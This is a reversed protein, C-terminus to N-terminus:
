EEQSLMKGIHPVRRLGSMIAEGYRQVLALREKVIQPKDIRKSHGSSNLAAVVRGQGDLLPIALSIVGYALEDEVVAYGDERAQLIARTLKAPDTTTVDTLAPLDGKMYQEIFSDSRGAMLVRGSATAFAPFRSGVHAELRMLMRASTRALYVIDRGQLVTFAAADGTENALATLHPMALQEIDVAELYNASLDLVKPTLFFRRKSVSVYGLEQLTLLCRRATAPALQAVESIESLTLDPTGKNFALLVELGKALGGM